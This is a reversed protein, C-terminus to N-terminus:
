LLAPNFVTVISINKASTNMNQHRAGRPVVIAMGPRYKIDGYGEVSLTGEGEMVYIIEDQEDHSHWEHGGGPYLQAVSFTFDVGARAKTVVRKLWGPPGSFAPTEDVSMLYVAPQAAM